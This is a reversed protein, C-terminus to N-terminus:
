SSNNKRKSDWIWRPATIDYGKNTKEIDLLRKPLWIMKGFKSVRIGKETEKHITRIHLTETDKAQNGNTEM